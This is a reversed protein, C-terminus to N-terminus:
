LPASGLIRYLLLGVESFKGEVLNLSYVTMRFRTPLSDRLAGDRDIEVLEGQQELEVLVEEEGRRARLVLEGGDFDQGELSWGKEGLRQRYFRSADFVRGEALYGVESVRKGGLLHSEYKVRVAAPYRQMGPVDEGPLDESPVADIPGLEPSGVQETRSQGLSFGAVFTILLAAM